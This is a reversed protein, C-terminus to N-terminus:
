DTGEEFIKKNTSFVNFGVDLTVFDKNEKEIKFYQGDTEVSRKMSDLKDYDFNKPLVLHVNQRYKPKFEKESQKARFLLTQIYFSESQNMFIEPIFGSEIIPLHYYYKQLKASQWAYILNNLIGKLEKPQAYGYDDISKIIKDNAIFSVSLGPLDTVDKRSYNDELELFRIENLKQVMENFINKDTKGQYLGELKTNAEGNYFINGESDLSISSIPCTGFCPALSLTIQDIQISSPRIVPKRKYRFILKTDEDYLSLFDKTVKVIKQAFYEKGKISKVFLSDDEVYYKGKQGLYVAYNRDDQTPQAKYFGNNEEYLSDRMIKFDSRLYTTTVGYEDDIEKPQIFEWDGLVMTTDITKKQCSLTIFILIILNIFYKLM